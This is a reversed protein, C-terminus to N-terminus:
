KRKRQQETKKEELGWGKVKTASERGEQAFLINCDLNEQSMEHEKKRRREDIRKNEFSVDM